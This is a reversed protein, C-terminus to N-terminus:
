VAHDRICFLNRFSRRRPTLSSTRKSGQYDIDMKEDEDSDSVDSGMSFVNERHNTTANLDVELQSLDSENGDLHNVIDRPRFFDNLITPFHRLLVSPNCVIEGLNKLSRASLMYMNPPILNSNQISPRREPHLVYDEEPIVFRLKGGPYMLHHDSPQKSALSTLADYVGMLHSHWRPAVSREAMIYAEILSSISNSDVCQEKGEKSCMAVLIHRLNEVARLSLRSVLDDAYVVSTVFAKCDEALPKSVCAAAAFSIGRVKSGIRHDSHWIIALVTAIAGGLSHGTLMIEFEEHSNSVNIILERLKRDLWQASCLMGRHAHGVHFAASEAHVDTLGDELNATGRVTVVIRKYKYDLVVAFAPQQFKSSSNSLLIDGQQVGTMRMILDDMSRSTLNMRLIDLILPGYSALAFDYLRKLTLFEIRGWETGIDFAPEVPPYPCGLVKQLAGFMALARILEGPSCVCLKSVNTLVFKILYQTAELPSKERCYIVARGKSLARNYCTNYERFITDTASLTLASASISTQLAVKTVAGSLRSFSDQNPLLASLLSSASIFPNKSAQLFSWGTEETKIKDSDGESLRRPRERMRRCHVRSSDETKKEEHEKYDGSSRKPVFPRISSGIFPLSSAADGCYVMGRTLTTGYILHNDVTDLMREGARRVAGSVEQTTPLTPVTPMVSRVRGTVDESSPFEPLSVAAKSVIDPLNNTAKTVLNGLM